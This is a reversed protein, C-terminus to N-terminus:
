KERREWSNTQKQKNTKGEALTGNGSVSLNLAMSCLPTSNFVSLADQYPEFKYICTYLPVGRSMFSEESLLCRELSSLRCPGLNGLGYM